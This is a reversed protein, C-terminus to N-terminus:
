ALGPRCSLDPVQTQGTVPAQNRVEVKIGPQLESAVSSNANFHMVIGDCSPFLRSSMCPFKKVPELIRSSTIINEISKRIYHLLLM